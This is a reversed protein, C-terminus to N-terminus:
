AYKKKPTPLVPFLKVFVLYALVEIAIIGVTVMIEQVSPFYHWGPAPHFGVLYANFRYIVGAFVTCLGAILLTNPQSRRAPSLLVVMPIIFLLSETIFMFGMFGQFMLGIQGRYLLDAFRIVLFLGLLWPVIGSLKALMPTELKRNFSVASIMSEVIVAGFGLVIASILFLLPLFMTQWLPSVKHGAIILVSGLSSQHMTPLLIGMGIFFFLCKRVIRLLGNAKLKELITPSFEIWLILSYSAMCISVEWLISNVNAYGPLFPTYLQYYRGVDLFIALGAMSYGLASTLMASRILPHYKGKNFLYILVAMAYGGCGIATGTVVDYVIWMGWPYGDSLNTVAGIGFVFRKGILYIAIIALIGLFIFPKTIIKGGIPKFESM